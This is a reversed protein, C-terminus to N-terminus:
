SKKKAILDKYRLRGPLKGLLVGFREPDKIKRTNYRYAFEYCYRQLHKPSMRIYIGYMGRRLQSFAGEIGNTHFIGRVYEGESHKVVEHGAFEKDLGVYSKHGDTNIVAAPDVQERIIGKLTDAETNPLVKYIVSGGRELVGFVPTKNVAGRGKKLKGDDDKKHRDRGGHYVEDIEVMGTFLPHKEKFMERIRHALFWASKQTIGIDKGLQISSIGAKHAALVYIAMFWSSLPINSNEMVTGVTVSYKKKCTGCKYRPTNRIKYWKQSACHPCTPIGEWRVGELYERCTDEDKFYQILHKLSKFETLLM